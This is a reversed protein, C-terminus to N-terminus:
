QAWLRGFQQVYDETFTDIVFTTDSEYYALLREELSAYDVEELPKASEVNEFDLTAVTKGHVSLSVLQGLTKKM